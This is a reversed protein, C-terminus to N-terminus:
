LADGSVFDDAFGLARTLGMLTAAFRESGSTGATDLVDVVLERGAIMPPLLEAVVYPSDDVIQRTGLEDVRIESGVIDGFSEGDVSWRLREPADIEREPFLLEARTDASERRILSLTPDSTEGQAVITSGDEATWEPEIEGDDLSTTLVCVREGRQEVCDATWAGFYATLRQEPEDDAPAEALAAPESEPPPAAPPEPVDATAAVAVRPAGAPLRCDAERPVRLEMLASARLVGDHDDATAVGEVLEGRLTTFLLQLEETATNLYRQQLDGVVSTDGEVWFRTEAGCPVFTNRSAGYVYYGSQVVDGGDNVAILRQLESLRQLSMTALCDKAIQEAEARPESFALYWLCNDRRYRAFASQSDVFATLAEAGLTGEIYAVIDAINDDLVDLYNDLCDHIDDLLPSLAACEALAGGDVSQGRATGPDLAGGVLALGLVAGAAIRGVTGEVGQRGM